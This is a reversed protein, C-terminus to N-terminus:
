ADWEDRRRDWTGHLASPIASVIGGIRGVADGPWARPVQKYTARLLFTGAGKVGPLARIQTGRALRAGAAMLVQSLAHCSAALRAHRRWWAGRLGAGCGRRGCAMGAAGNTSRRSGWTAGDAWRTWHRRIGHPRCISEDIGRAARDLSDVTVVHSCLSCAQTDSTPASAEDMGAVVPSAPVRALSCSSLSAQWTLPPLAANIAPAVRLAPPLCRAPPSTRHILTTASRVQIFPPEELLPVHPVRSKLGMVSRTLM